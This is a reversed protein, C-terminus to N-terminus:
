RRPTLLDGGRAGGDRRARRARGYRGALEDVVDALEPPAVVEFDLGVLAIHVALAGLWPAGSHLLCTDEDIAELTGYTPPVRQAAVALPARLLVTGQYRDRASSRGRSVYAM